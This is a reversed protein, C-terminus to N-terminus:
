KKIIQSSLTEKIRKWITELEIASAGKPAYEIISQGKIMAKIFDADYPLQGVVQLKERKAMQLINDAQMSDIDWKNIVILAPINFHRSLNIMRMADHQSSLSPEIVILSADCCSLAAIVPCAIGPPGDILVYQLQKEQAHALATQRVWHVLKGSNEGGPHLRAHVMMGFRTDSLYCNGCEKEKMTIAGEPCGLKCLGCGDCSIPDIHYYPYAKDSIVAEFRCLDACKGCSTCLNASIEAEKGSYFVEQHFIKPALILHLDSADVDCDAFLAKDALSALAACISTKGTGGKGSAILLQKIM